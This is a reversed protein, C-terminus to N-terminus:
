HVLDLNLIEDDEVYLFDEVEVVVIVTILLKKDYDNIVTHM